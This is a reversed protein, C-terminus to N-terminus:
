FPKMSTFINKGFEFMGALGEPVHKENCMCYSTHTLQKSWGKSTRGWGHADGHAERNEVGFVMNLKSGTGGSSQAQPAKSAGGGAGLAGSASGDNPTEKGDCARSAYTLVAARAEYMKTEKVKYIDHFWFMFGLFTVMVPMIIGAEVLAAGLQSRRRRIRTSVRHSVTKM